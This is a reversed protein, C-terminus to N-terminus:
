PRARSLQIRMMPTTMGDLATCFRTVARNELIESPRSPMNVAFASGVHMAMQGDRWRAMLGTLHCKGAM